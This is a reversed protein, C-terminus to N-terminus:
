DIYNIKDFLKKLKNFQKQKTPSKLNDKFLNIILIMEELYDHTGVVIYESYRGIRNITGVGLMEEIQILVKKEKTPKKISFILERIVFQPEKGYTNNEIKFEAAIDALGVLWILMNNSPQSKETLLFCEAFKVRFDDFNFKYNEM